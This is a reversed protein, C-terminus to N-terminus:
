ICLTIRRQEIQEIGFTRNLVKLVERQEIQEIEIIRNLMKLVRQYRLYANKAHKEARRPTSTVSLGGELKEDRSIMRREKM